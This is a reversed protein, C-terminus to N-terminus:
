LTTGEGHLQVPTVQPLRPMGRTRLREEAIVLEDTLLANRGTKGCIDLDSYTKNDQLLAPCRALGERAAHQSWSCAHM